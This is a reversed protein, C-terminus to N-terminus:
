RNVIVRTNCIRDHLARKEEDFAAMFYGIGLILGSLMKAFYRGLALMYSVQGGEATVVKVKVAMKGLTAGYKGILFTEYSVGIILNILMVVAQMVFFGASPTRATSAFMLGAMFGIAANVVGLIIGDLFVAAFRTWFGAYEMDGTNLRAGESLKQIFAPKCGACVRANGYAITDELNFLRGCEACVAQGPVTATATGGQSGQVQGYPQWNAMGEKWVLTEPKIRGSQVLQDLQADDVPGNQQGAEAYYWNM